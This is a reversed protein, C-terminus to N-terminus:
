GGPSPVILTDDDLWAAMRGDAVKSSEGTSVNVVYIVNNVGYAIRSGDPSMKPFDIEGTGKVLTRVGDTTAIVLRAGTFFEGNPRLFAYTSGESTTAQTANRALLTPEGGTM